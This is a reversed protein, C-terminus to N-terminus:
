GATGSHLIHAVDVWGVVFVVTVAVAAIVVVQRWFAVCLLALVVLVFPSM